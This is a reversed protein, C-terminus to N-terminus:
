KIGACRPSFGRLWCTLPRKSADEVCIEVDKHGLHDLAYRIQRLAEKIALVPTSVVFQISLRPERKIPNVYMVGVGATRVQLKGLLAEVGALQKALRVAWKEEDRLNFPSGCYHMTVSWRVHGMADSILYFAALVEEKLAGDDNCYDASPRQRLVPPPLGTLATFLDCAWQARLGHFVVGMQARTLCAQACIEEIRGRAQQLTVDLRRMAGLPHQRARSRLDNLLEKQRQRREPDMAMPVKRRKGGKGRVKVYGARIDAYPRTTATERAREGYENAMEALLGIVPDLPAIKGKIVLDVPIGLQRWGSVHNKPASTNWTPLEIGHLNLLRGYAAGNPLLDRLGLYTYLRRMGSVRFTVTAELLDGTVYSDELCRLMVLVHREGLDCVNKVRAGEDGEAKARANIEELTRFLCHKLGTERRNSMDRQTSGTGAPKDMDLLQSLQWKWDGPAKVALIRAQQAWLQSGRLARAEMKSSRFGRSAASDSRGVAQDVGTATASGRAGVIDGAAAEYEGMM